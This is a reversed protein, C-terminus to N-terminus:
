AAAKACFGQRRHAPDAGGLAGRLGGRLFARGATGSDFQHGIVAGLVAGFPGLAALGLVGGIIKGTWNM